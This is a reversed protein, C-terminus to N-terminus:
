ELTSLGERKWMQRREMKRTMWRQTLMGAPCNEAAMDKVVSGERGSNQSNWHPTTTSKEAEERPKKVEM